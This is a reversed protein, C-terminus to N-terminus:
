SCPSAAEHRVTRWNLKVDDNLEVRVNPIMDTPVTNGNNRKM